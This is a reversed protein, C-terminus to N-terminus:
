RAHIGDRTYKLGRYLRKIKAMGSVISLSLWHGKSKQTAM